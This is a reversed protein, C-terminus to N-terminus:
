GCELGQELIGYGEEDIVQDVIPCMVEWDPSHEAYMDLLLNSINRLLGTPVDGRTFELRRGLVSQVMGDCKARLSMWVSVLYEHFADSTASAPQKIVQFDSLTKVIWNEWNPSPRQGAFRLAIYNEALLDANQGVFPIIGLFKPSQVAGCDLNPDRHGYESLYFVIHTLEYATKKNPLAFTASCNIFQRLRDDPGLDISVKTGRRALLWSVEACQLDSLETEALGQVAVSDCM